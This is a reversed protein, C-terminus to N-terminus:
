QTAAHIKCAIHLKPEQGGCIAGLNAQWTEQPLTIHQFNSLLDVKNDGETYTLRLVEASNQILESVCYYSQLEGKCEEFKFM